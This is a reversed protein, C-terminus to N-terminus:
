TKVTYAPDNAADVQPKEIELTFSDRYHFDPKGAPHKLAWYSLVGDDEEIVASLGLQLPAGSHIPLRDLGVRADLVLSDGATRVTISPIVGGNVALGGVRYARFGYAAWEGSPAFNFEYYASDGKLSVFAEFCTHEWLRDATRSPRLPPIRLRRIEGTLTYTLALAGGETWSVRSEIGHVAQSRTEPHCALAATHPISHTVM